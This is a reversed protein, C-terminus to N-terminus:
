QVSMKQMLNMTKGRKIEFLIVTVNKDYHINKLKM